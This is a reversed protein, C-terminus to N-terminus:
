PGGPVARRQGPVMGGGLGGGGARRAGLWEGATPNPSFLCSSASLLFPTTSPREGAALLLLVTVPLLVHSARPQHSLSPRSPAALREGLCRHSTPFLFPTHFGVWFTWLARVLAKEVRPADAPCWVGPALCAPTNVSPAGVEAPVPGEGNRLEWGQGSSPLCLLPGPRPCPTQSVTPPWSLDPGGHSKGLFGWVSSAPIQSNHQPCVGARPDGVGEARFPPWPGLASHIPTPILTPTVSWGSVSGGLSAWAPASWGTPQPCGAGLGLRTYGAPPQLM